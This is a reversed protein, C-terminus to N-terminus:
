FNKLETKLKQLIFSQEKHFHLNQLSYTWFGVEPNSWIPWLDFFHCHRLLKGGYAM